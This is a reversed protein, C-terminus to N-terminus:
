YWSPTMMGTSTIHKFNPIEAANLTTYMIVAEINRGLTEALANPVQLKKALIAVITAGKTASIGSGTGTITSDIIHKEALTSTIPM